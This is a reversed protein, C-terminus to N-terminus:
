KMLEKTDFISVLLKVQCVGTLLSSIRNVNSNLGRLESIDSDQTINTLKSQIAYEVSNSIIKEIHKKLGLNISKQDEYVFSAAEDHARLFQTSPQIISDKVIDTWFDISISKQSKGFDYHNPLLDYDTKLLNQFWESIYMMSQRCIESKFGRNTVFIDRLVIMLNTYSRLLFVNVDNVEKSLKSTIDIELDIVKSTRNELVSHLSSISEKYSGYSSVFKSNFQNWKITCIRDVGDIKVEVDRSFDDMLDRRNGLSFPSFPISRVLMLVWFIRLHGDQLQSYHKDMYSRWSSNCDFFIREFDSFATEIVLKDNEYDVKVPSFFNLPQKLRKIMVIEKKDDYDVALTSSDFFSFNGSSDCGLFGVKNEILRKRIQSMFLVDGFWHPERMRGGTVGIMLSLVVLTFSATIATFPKGPGEIFTIAFNLVLVGILTLYTLKSWLYDFTLRQSFIYGSFISILCILGFILQSYEGFYEELTLFPNESTNLIRLVLVSILTFLSVGM